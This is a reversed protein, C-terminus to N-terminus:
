TWQQISYLSCILWLTLLGRAKDQCLYCLGLFCIFLHALSTFTGSAGQVKVGAPCCSAHLLVEESQRRQAFKTKFTASHFAHTMAQRCRPFFCKNDQVAYSMSSICSDACLYSKLPRNINKQMVWVESGRPLTPQETNM